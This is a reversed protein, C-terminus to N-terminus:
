VVSSRHGVADFSANRFPLVAADAVAICCAKICDKAAREAAIQLGALPLDVLAIECGSLKALYLGPWGPGAGLDLFHM